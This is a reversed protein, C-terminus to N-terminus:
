NCNRCLCSLCVSQWVLLTDGSGSLARYGPQEATRNRIMTFSPTDRDRSRERPTPDECAIFSRNSIYAQWLTKIQFHLLTTSLMMSDFWCECSVMQVKRSKSFQVDAYIAYSWRGKLGPGVRWTRYGPRFTFYSFIPFKQTWDIERTWRCAKEKWLRKLRSVRLVREKREGELCWVQPWDAKQEYCGDDHSSCNSMRGM